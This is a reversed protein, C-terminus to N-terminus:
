PSDTPLNVAGYSKLMNDKLKLEDQLEPLSRIIRVRTFQAILPIKEPSIKVTIFTLGSVFRFGRNSLKGGLEEILDKFSSLVYADTESAHLTIHVHDPWRTNSNVRLKETAEYVGLDEIRAFQSKKSEAANLDFLNENMLRFNDATGSVFISATEQEKKIDDRSKRPTIKVPRSGLIVLGSDRLIGAPFYSKALFAPHLIIKATVEGKPTFQPNISKAFNTIDEIEKHLINRVDVISYPLWKKGGGQPWSLDGILEHGNAILVNRNKESM